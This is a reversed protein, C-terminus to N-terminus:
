VVDASFATEAMGCTDRADLEALLRKFEGIKEEYDTRTLKVVQRAAILKEEWWEIGKERILKTAFVHLM